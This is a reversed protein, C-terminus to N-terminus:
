NTKRRSSTRQARRASAIADPQKTTGSSKFSRLASAETASEITPSDTNEGATSNMLRQGCLLRQEEAAKAQIMEGVGIANLLDLGAGEIRIGKGKQTQRAWHRALDALTTM